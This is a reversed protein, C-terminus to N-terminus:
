CSGLKSTLLEVLAGKKLKYYRTLNLQKAIAKLDDMKLRRLDNADSPFQKVDEADVDGVSFSNPTLPEEKVARGIATRTSSSCDMQVSFEEVKMASISDKKRKKEPHLVANELVAGHEKSDLRVPQMLRKMVMGDLDGATISKQMKQGQSNSATLDYKKDNAAIKAMQMGLLEPKRKGRQPLKSATEGWQDQLQPLFSFASHEASTLGTERVKDSLRPKKKGEKKSSLNSSIMINTQTVNPEEMRQKQVYCKWAAKLAVNKVKEDMDSKGGEALNQERDAQRFAVLGSDSNGKRGNLGTACRLADPSSNEYANTSKANEGLDINAAAANLAHISNDEEMEENKIKMFSNNLSKEKNSHNVVHESAHMIGPQFKVTELIRRKENALKLSFDKVIGNEESITSLEEAEVNGTSKSHFNSLLNKDDTASKLSDTSSDKIDPSVPKDTQANSTKKEQPEPSIRSIKYHEAPNDGFEKVGEKQTVGSCSDSVKSSDDLLETAHVTTHSSSDIVEKDNSQQKDKEELYKTLFANLIEHITAIPETHVLLHVEIDNKDKDRLSRISINLDDIRERLAGCCIESWEEYEFWALESQLSVLDKELENIETDAKTILIRSVQICSKESMADEEMVDTGYGFYFDCQWENQSCHSREPSAPYFSPGWLDWPDYDM